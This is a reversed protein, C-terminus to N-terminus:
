FEIILRNSLLVGALPEIRGFCHGVILITGLQAVSAAVCELAAGAVYSGVGDATTLLFRVPPSAGWWLSLLLCMACLVDAARISWSSPTEFLPSQLMFRAGLFGASTILMTICSAVLAVQLWTEWNETPADITSTDVSTTVAVVGWCLAVVPPLLRATGAMFRLRKDRASDQTAVRRELTAIALMRQAVLQAILINGIYTLVNFIVNWWGASHWMPVTAALIRVTALLLLSVTAAGVRVVAPGWRRPNTPIQLGTFSLLNIFSKYARWYAYLALVGPIAILTYHLGPVDGAGTHACAEGYRPWPCYVPAAPTWHADATGNKM